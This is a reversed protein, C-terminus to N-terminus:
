LLRPVTLTQATKTRGTRQGHPATVTNADYQACSTELKTEEISQLSIILPSSIPPNFNDAQVEPVSCAQEGESERERAALAAM